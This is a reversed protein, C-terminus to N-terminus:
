QQFESSLTRDFQIERAMTVSKLVNSPSTVRSVILQVLHQVSKGLHANSTKFRSPQRVLACRIFVIFCSESPREDGYAINLPCTM